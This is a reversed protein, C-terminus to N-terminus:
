LPIQLLHPPQTPLYAFPMSSESSLRSRSRAMQALRDEPSSFYMERGEPHLQFAQFIQHFLGEQGEPLSM